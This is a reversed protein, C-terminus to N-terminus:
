SVLPSASDVTKKNVNSLTNDSSITTDTSDFVRPCDVAANKANGEDVLEVNWSVRKNKGSPNKDVVLSSVLPMCSTTNSDDVSSGPKSRCGDKKTSKMSRRRGIAAASSPPLTANDCVAVAASSSSPASSSVSTSNVSVATTASSSTSDSSSSSPASSNVSVAVTESSSTSSSALTTISSSSSTVNNCVAASSAASSSSDSTTNRKTLISKRIDGLRRDRREKDDSSESRPSVRACGDSVNHCTTAMKQSDAKSNFAEKDGNYIYLITNNDEQEDNDKTNDKNYQTLEDVPVDYFDDSYYDYDGLVDKKHKVVRGINDNQMEELYLKNHITMQVAEMSSDTNYDCENNAHKESHPTDQAADQVEEDECDVGRLSSSIRQRKGPPAGTLIPEADKSPVSSPKSRTDSSKPEFISLSEGPFVLQMVGVDAEQKRPLAPTSTEKSDKTNEKTLNDAPTKARTVETSTTTTDNSEIANTSPQQKQHQQDKTLPTTTTCTSAQPVNTVDASTLKACIERLDLKNKACAPNETSGDQPGAFMTRDEDEDVYGTEGASERTLRRYEVLMNVISVVDDMSNKLYEDDGNKLREVVVSLQTRFLPETLYLPDCSCYCRRLIKRNYDLGPVKIILKIFQIPISTCLYM